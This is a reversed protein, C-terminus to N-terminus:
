VMALNAPKRSGTVKSKSPEDMAYQTSAKQITRPARNPELGTVAYISDAVPILPIVTKCTIKLVFGSMKVASPPLVPKVAMVVPIMNKTEMKKAGMKEDIGGHAVPPANVITPVRITQLHTRRRDMVLLHISLEETDQFDVPVIDTIRYRSEDGKYHNREGELSDRRRDDCKRFYNGSCCPM